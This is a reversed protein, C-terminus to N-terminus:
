YKMTRVKEILAGDAAVYKAVLDILARAAEEEPVAIEVSHRRRDQLLLAAEEEDVPPGTDWVADDEVDVAIEEDDEAMVMHGDIDVAAPDFSSSASTVSVAVPQQPVAGAAGAAGAAAAAASSTISSVFDDVSTNALDEASASAPTPCRSSNHSGGLAAAAVALAAAASNMKALV